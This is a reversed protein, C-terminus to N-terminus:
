HKNVNNLPTITANKDIFALQRIQQLASAETLLSENEPPLKTEHSVSIVKLDM